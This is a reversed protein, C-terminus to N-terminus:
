RFAKLEPEIQRSLEANIRELENLVAQYETVTEALAYVAAATERMNGVFTPLVRVMESGKRSHALITSAAERTMADYARFFPDNAPYSLGLISRIEEGGIERKEQEQVYRWSDANGRGYRILNSNVSDVLRKFTMGQEAARLSRFRELWNSQMQSARIETSGEDAGLKPSSASEIHIASCGLGFVM